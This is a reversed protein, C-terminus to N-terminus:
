SVRRRRGYILVGGCILLILFVITGQLSLAPVLAPPPPFFQIPGEVADLAPALSTNDTNLDVEPIPTPGQSIEASSAFFGAEGGNSVETTTGLDQVFQHGLVNTGALDDYLTVRAVVYDTGGGSVNTSASHKHPLVEFGGLTWFSRKIQIPSSSTINYGVHIKETSNVTLGSWDYTVNKTGGGSTTAAPFTGTPSSRCCQSGVTIATASVFEIHFDNALNGTTNFFDDNHFTAEAPSGSLLLLAFALAIGIHVSSVRKM